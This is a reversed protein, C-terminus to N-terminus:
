AGPVINDLSVLIGCTLAPARVNFRMAWEKTIDTHNARASAAVLHAGWADDM